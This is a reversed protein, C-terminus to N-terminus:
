MIFIISIKMASEGVPVARCHLHNDDVVQEYGDACTCKYRGFTNECLQDCKGFVSCEDFDLNSLFFDDFM